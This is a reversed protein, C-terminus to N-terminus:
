ASETLAEEPSLTKLCLAHVDKNLEEELCAYVKQHRQIRSMGTFVSSIITVSFHSEGEPRHQAHGVHHHSDDQVKIYLPSFADQLKEEIRTKLM